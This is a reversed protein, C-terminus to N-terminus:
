FSRRVRRLRPPPQASAAAAPAVVPATKYIRGGKMVFAVDQLRTIDKLPDGQVAVIDAEYGAKLTGIQNGLNMSEAALSTASVIADGPSQGGDKVRVIAERANQGHAGAVADTGLPMRVGAKLAKNFIPAFTPVAKEMFAFGEVNFNGSGMYKDKNEIYNQLVLGINPDFFLNADKMAKIADDNAFGGHEVQTCGAKVTAIISEPSHAHVLTRLGQAKAEECIADLQEQTVNMKGGDRISGSAFVKVLDAGETKLARVRQRLQDPTQNGPQIQGLSSLLRPGVVVGGAIAERLAKDQAWGVSQVTTFGAMLTKRANELVADIAYAAPVDREGYKGGPGFYWNLHVHVDIMGPLLTVDGLDHTVPGTRQDIAVIKSGQVEVVTNTLQNGRGDLVRAARITIPQNGGRGGQGRGATAPTTQQAALPTFEHLSAATTTLVAGCVALLAAGSRVTM